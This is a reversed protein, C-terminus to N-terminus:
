ATDKGGDAVSAWQEGFEDKFSRLAAEILGQIEDVSIKIGREQARKALWTAAQNYKDQGRLDRYAQETFRVALFALEQKTELEKQIRQMKEVGLKRRILEVLGAALVPLLILFADYAFSIVMDSM